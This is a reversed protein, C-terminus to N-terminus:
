ETPIITEMLRNYEENDQQVNMMDISNWTVTITTEEGYTPSDAYKDYIDLFANVAEAESYYSGGEFESMASLFSTNPTTTVDFVYETFSNQKMAGVTYQCNQYIRKSANKFRENQEENFEDMRFESFSDDYWAATEEATSGTHEQYRGTDGKLSADLYAQIYDRMDFVKAVATYPAMYGQLADEILSKMEEEEISFESGNKTVMVTRSKKQQKGADVLLEKDQELLAETEACFDTTSINGVYEYNASETATGIDIPEYSVRVSYSGDEGEEAKNVEFQVQNLAEMLFSEYSERLEEPFDIIINEKDKIDSLGDDLIGSLEGETEKAQTIQKGLYDDASEKKECGSGIVLCLFLLCPLLVKMKKKM